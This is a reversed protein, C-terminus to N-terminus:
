TTDYLISVHLMLLRTPHVLSKCEKLLANMLSYMRNKCNYPTTKFAHLDNTYEVLSNRDQIICYGSFASQYVTCSGCNRIRECLHFCIGIKTQKSCVGGEEPLKCICNFPSITYNQAYQVSPENHM